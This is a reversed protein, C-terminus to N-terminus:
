AHFVILELYYNGHGPLAGNCNSASAKLARIGWTAQPLYVSAAMGNRLRTKGTENGAADRFWLITEYDPNTARGQQLTATGSALPWIHGITKITAADCSVTGSKYMGASAHAAPALGIAVAMAAAVVATSISTRSRSRM